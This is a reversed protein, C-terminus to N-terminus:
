AKVYAERAKAEKLVKAEKAKQLYLEKRTEERLQRDREAEQEERRQAIQLASQLLVDVAERDSASRTQTAPLPSVVMFVMLGGLGQVCRFLDDVNAAPGGRDSM